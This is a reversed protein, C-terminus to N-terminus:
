RYLCQTGASALVERRFALEYDFDSALMERLVQENPAFMGEVPQRTEPSIVQLRNGINALVGRRLASAILEGHLDVGGLHYYFPFEGTINDHTGAKGKLTRYKVWKGVVDRNENSGRSIREGSWMVLDILKYHKSSEGGRVEWEQIYKQINSPMNARNQNAVVQQVFLVTTPNRGRRMHPVYRQWFQKMMVAHAGRQGFEGMEKEMDASPMLGSISDVGIVTFINQEVCNIVASLVEEGTGGEIMEIHGVQTKFYSLEEPTFQPMGRHHRWEAWHNLIVDPVAIRCGAQLAQDYPFATESVHLAGMFDNGYIQQQMAITRFLLWSKGSNFPGSLMCAGGAPFGGGLAIDLEIIGTPRRIMYVNEAEDAPYLRDGLQTRLGRLRAAKETKSLERQKTFPTATDAAILTEAPAQAVPQASAKKSVKKTSAKKKTPAKKKKGVSKRRKAAM